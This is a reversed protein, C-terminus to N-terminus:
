PAALQDLASEGAVVLTEGVMFAYMLEDEEAPALILYDFTASGATPIVQGTAGTLSLLRDGDTIDRSPGLALSMDALGDVFVPDLLGEEAILTRGAGVSGLDLYFAHELHLSKQETDVLHQLSDDDHPRFPLSSTPSLLTLVINTTAALLFAGAVLGFRRPQTM